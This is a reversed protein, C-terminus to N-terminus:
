LSDRDKARAGSPGGDQRLFETLACAMLGFVVGGCIGYSMNKRAYRTADFVIGSPLGSASRLPLAPRVERHAYIEGM